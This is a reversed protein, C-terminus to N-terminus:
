GNRAKRSRSKKTAATREHLLSLIASELTGTRHRLLLSDLEILLSISDRLLQEGSETCDPTCDGHLEILLLVAQKLRPPMNRAVDYIEVLKELNERGVTTIATSLWPTLIALTPLDIDEDDTTEPGDIHQSSEREEFPEESIARPSDWSEQELGGPGECFGPTIDDAGDGWSDPGFGLDPDGPSDGMEGFSLVDSETSPETATVIDSPDASAALEPPPPVPTSSPTPGPDAHAEPTHTIIVQQPPAPPLGGASLNFNGGLDDGGSTTGLSGIPGIAGAAGLGLGGGGMGAGTILQDKIDLLVAQVENKIVKLEDELNQIKNEM